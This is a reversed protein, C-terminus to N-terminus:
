IPIRVNRKSRKLEVSKKLKSRTSPQDDEGKAVTKSRTSPQDDEGKAVPKRKPPRGRPRRKSPELKHEKVSNDHNPLTLDEKTLASESTKEQPIHNCLLKQPEQEQQKQIDAAPLEDQVITDTKAKRSRGRRQYTRLSMEKEQQPSELLKCVGQSNSGEDKQLNTSSCPPVSVPQPQAGSQRQSSIVKERRRTIVTSDSPLKKLFQSKKIDSTVEVPPYKGSNESSSMVKKTVIGKNNRKKEFRWRSKKRRYKKGGKMSGSTSGAGCLSYRFGRTVIIEGHESLSGLHHQLLSCHAWPLDDYHKNIFESISKESSGGKENLELIARQIMAAYPPHHPTHFQSLIQTLRDEIVSIQTPNLSHNNKIQGMIAERLNEM